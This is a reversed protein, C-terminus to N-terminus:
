HKRVYRTNKGKGYIVLEDQDILKHLLRNATSLSTGTLREAEPRTISEHTELWSRIIDEDSRFASESLRPATEQNQNPLIVKFVHETVRFLQDADMTPYVGLIRKLGTGYAEILDLRYFVDALGQNRCVSLGEMVDILSFGQVLGGASVIEIRNSYISILTSASFAYDRHVVANLLAERLAIEPYSRRDVRYLGDFSASTANHMDLFAYADDLQKLVSGTFERRDQFGQQDIGAFTAAKIIHPCQDSLLLGLNTYIGDTGLMGLTVMQPTELDLNKKAFVSRAYDFSLDQQLSRASEYSDGATERIMMRIALDSAPAASTGSRVFVGEPRMGKTEWYYPRDTGRGIKVHVVSKGEMRVTEFHLFMTVDPKISDRAMNSIQQTVKDPSSVGIVEGQDSVGVYLDGGNTNAFAIIEKRISESYEQKLEVNENETFAVQM